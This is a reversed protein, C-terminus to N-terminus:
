MLLLCCTGAVNRKIFIKDKEPPRTFSIGATGYPYTAVEIIYKPTRGLSHGIETSTVDVKATIFACDINDDFTIKKRSWDLVQNFWDRLASEGFDRLKM